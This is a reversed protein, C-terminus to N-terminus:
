GLRRARDLGKYRTFIELIWRGFRQRSGVLSHRASTGLSKVSMPTSEAAAVEAQWTVPATGRGRAPPKTSGPGAQKHGWPGLIFSCVANAKIPLWARNSLAGRRGNFPVGGRLFGRGPSLTKGMASYMKSKQLLTKKGVESDPHLVKDVHNLHDWTGLRTGALCYIRDRM